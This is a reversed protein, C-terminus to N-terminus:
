CAAQDACVEGKGYLEEKLYIIKLGV